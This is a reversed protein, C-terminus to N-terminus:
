TTSNGLANRLGSFWSCFVLIPLPDWIFWVLLRFTSLPSEGEVQKKELDLAKRMDEAAQWLSLVTAEQEVLSQRPDEYSVNLQNLEGDLRSVEEDRQKLTAQAGELAAREQQLRGQAEERALREREFAAQAEALAAREQQLQAEAQHHADQEQQLREETSALSAAKDALSTRLLEAEKAKEEAQSQWSRAGELTARDQQLQARASALEREFEVAAVWVAAVDEHAKRLAEDRV